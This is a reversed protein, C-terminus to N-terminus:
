VVLLPTIFPVLSRDSDSLDLSGLDAASAWRVEDHERLAAPEGAFTVLIAALGYRKGGNEFSSEGITAGADVRLGFEEDFERVAADADSEGPERKGGPFEWKGGMAGGPRRRAVFVLEGRIAIGAVSRM